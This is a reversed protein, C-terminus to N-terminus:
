FDVSASLKFTRGEGVALDNYHAMSWYSKDMLNDINARVTLPMQDIKTSYRAGIGYITRGSISQDNDNDLYSKSASTANATLTLKDMFPTDWEAGLKAQWEPIGSAQNGIQTVDNASTIKADLYTIGGMLRLHDFPTGYFGWEIGRNRQEGYYGYVNTESDTYSSPREIEYIALNHTFSGHDFKLGIEKQKTKYPAFIEGANDSLAPATGGASLGEMYNAYVSTQDNLRTVFAVSPTVASEDYISGTSLMGGTQETKVMQHRAGVTLQYRDQNFSLTDALGVSTLTTETTLLLPANLDLNPKNSWDPAYINTTFQDSFRVANLNYTEKYHTANTVLQHSIGGTHFSYRLGAELSMRKNDDDVYGLTTNYDGASNFIEAKSASLGEYDMENQGAAAYISLQDNVDYEGRTIVGQTQSEYFAWSPSLPNDADPARPIDVASAVTIGRTPGDVEEKTRYIDASLRLREGRWDIGLSGVNSEKEQSDISTDGNSYAGNFRMGWENNEGFRRGVDLHGGVQSDSRYKTTLRTLPEEGARKTQLNVSGGVSGNPSMGNLLASPGKLVEVREFMEPASRYYPAMGSLGNLTVDNSNTSFGRISYSELNEGVVESSYVSADTASIVGVIDTAQLDDVFKDTYSIASFPTELADKNGLFGAHNSELIQDASGQYTSEADQEGEVMLVPLTTTVSSEEQQEVETQAYVYSSNVLVAGIVINLMMLSKVNPSSSLASAVRMPAHQGRETSYKEYM